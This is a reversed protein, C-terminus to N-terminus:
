RRLAALVDDAYPYRHGTHRGEERGALRGPDDGARDDDPRDRGGQFQRPEDDRRGDEGSRWAPRGSDDELRAGERGGRDRRHGLKIIEAANVPGMVGITKKPLPAKQARDSPAGGASGAATVGIVVIALVTALLRWGQSKRM